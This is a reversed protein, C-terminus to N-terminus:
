LLILEFVKVKKISFKSFTSVELKKSPVTPSVTRVIQKKRKSLIKKPSCNASCNLNKLKDKYKSM